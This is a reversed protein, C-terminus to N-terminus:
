KVTVKIDGPKYKGYYWYEWHQCLIPSPAPSTSRVDPKSYGVGGDLGWGGDELSYLYWGDSTRHEKENLSYYGSKIWKRVEGTASLTLGSEANEMDVPECM